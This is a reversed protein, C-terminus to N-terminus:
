DFGAAYPPTMRPNPLGRQRALARESESVDTPRPLHAQGSRGSPTFGYGQRKVCLRLTAVVGLLGFSDKRGKRRQPGCSSQNGVAQEGRGQVAIGEPRRRDIALM